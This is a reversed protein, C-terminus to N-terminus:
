AGEVPSTRSIAAQWAAAIPFVLPVGLLVVAAVTLWMISRMAPTAPQETDLALLLFTICNITVFSVYVATVLDGAVIPGRVAGLFIELGAFALGFAVMLVFEVVIFRRGHLAVDMDVVERVMFRRMM